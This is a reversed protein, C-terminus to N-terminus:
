LWDFKIGVCRNVAFKILKSLYSENLLADHSYPVFDIFKTSLFAHKDFEIQAADQLVGVTYADRENSFAFSLGFMLAVPLIVNWALSGRDRIFERNRAQFVAYIRQWM